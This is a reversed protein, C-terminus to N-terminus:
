KVSGAKSFPFLRVWTKGLIRDTKVPGFTRSDFSKGPIRNDGMIYICDEPVVIDSYLTNEITTEKNNIYSESLERGDVFVSGDKILVQQNEVAIVRKIAYEQRNALFEPIKMVVIDGAQITGFRPTIAEIIIVDQNRLTPNMSNGDVITLRGVYLILFLGIVVALAIHIVWDLINKVAKNIM